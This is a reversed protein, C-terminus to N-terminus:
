EPSAVARSGELERIMPRMAMAVPWWRHVKRPSNVQMGILLVVVDGEIEATYRKAFVQAV